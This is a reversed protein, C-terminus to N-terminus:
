RQLVRLSSVVDVVGPVRRALTRIVRADAENEVDGGITVRGHVVEIELETPDIWLDDRIMQVLDQKVTADDRAFARVLDARTILGVLRGHENVVPLRNIGEALMVSAAHALPRDPEITLAPTSMAEAVTQAYFREDVPQGELFRELASGRPIQDVEKAIVDTESLIGVVRGAPDVVPLGSVRHRVLEGAAEKLATQPTTTVLDLTMADSVKMIAGGQPSPQSGM